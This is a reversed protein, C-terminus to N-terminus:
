VDCERFSIRVSVCDHAESSPAPSLMPEEDFAVYFTFIIGLESGVESVNESASVSVRSPNIMERDPHNTETSINM